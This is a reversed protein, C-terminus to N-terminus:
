KVGTVKIERRWDESLEIRRIGIESRLSDSLLEVQAPLCSAPAAIIVNAPKDAIRLGSFAGSAALLGSRRQLEIRRWYDVAQFIVSPDASTKVEVISLRGGRSIALLDIRDRATRYQNYVPSVTLGPDIATIDRRLMSELWAEPATRYYLHQKNPSDYRRYELLAIILNEMEYENGPGLLQRQREVGFWCSERGHLVRTRAFPLGRFRFTMGNRSFLHDIADRENILGEAIPGTSMQGIQRIRAPADRWLLEFAVPKVISLRGDQTSKGFSLLGIGMGISEKLCSHLRKLGAAKGRGALIWCKGTLQKGRRGDRRWLVASTLLSEPSARGTLDAIVGSMRGSTDEMVTRAFRGRPQNVYVGRIKSAPFADAIMGAIENASALRAERVDASIEDPAMRAILEVRQRITGFRRSLELRVRRDEVEASEVSWLRYGDIDLMGFFARGRQFSLEMEGSRLAFVRGSRHVAIWEDHKHLLEM